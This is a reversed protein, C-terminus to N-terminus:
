MKRKQKRLRHVMMALFTVGSTLCLLIALPDMVYNYMGCMALTWNNMLYMAAGTIFMVLLFAYFFPYLWDTKEKQVPARPTMGLLEDVSVDLQKCLLVVSGIDPTSSGTEWKSITQRTLHLKEALEEQSLGAKRRFLAINGAIQESM